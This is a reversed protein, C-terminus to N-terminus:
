KVFSSMNQNSTFPTINLPPGRGKEVGDAEEESVYSWEQVIRRPLQPATKGLTWDVLKRLCDIVCYDLRTNTM